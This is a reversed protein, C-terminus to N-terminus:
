MFVNYKIGLYNKTYNVINSYISKILYINDNLFPTLNKASAKIKVFLSNPESM